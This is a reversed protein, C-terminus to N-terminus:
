LQSVNVFYNLIRQVFNEQIFTLLNASYDYIRQYITDHNTFTVTTESVFDSNVYEEPIDFTYCDIIQQISIKSKPKLTLYAKSVKDLFKLMTKTPIEKNTYFIWGLNDKFVICSKSNFDQNCKIISESENQKQFDKLLKSGNSNESSEYIVEDKTFIACYMTTM